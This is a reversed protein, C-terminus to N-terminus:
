IAHSIQYIIGMTYLAPLSFCTCLHIGSLGGVTGGSAPLCHTHCASASPGVRWAPLNATAQGGGMAELCSLLHGGTLCLSPLFTHTATRHHHLCAPLTHPLHCFCTAGTWTPARCTCLGLCTCTPQYTCACPPICHSELLRGSDQLGQPLISHCCCTARCTIACASAAPATTRAPGGPPLAPMGYVLPQLCGTSTTHLHCHHVGAHCTSAPLCLLSDTDPLLLASDWCTTNLYRGTAAATHYDWSHCTPFGHPPSYGGTNHSTGLSTYFAPGQQLLLPGM